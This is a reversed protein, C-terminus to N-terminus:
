RVYPRRGFGLLSAVHPLSGPCDQGTHGDRYRRQSCRQEERHRRRRVACHHDGAATSEEAILVADGGGPKSWALGSQGFVCRVEPAVMWILYLLHAAWGPVQDRYMVFSPQSGVLGRVQASMCLTGNEVLVLGGDTPLGPLM